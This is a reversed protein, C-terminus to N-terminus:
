CAEQGAQFGELHEEGAKFGEFHLQGESWCGGDTPESSGSAGLGFTFFGLTTGTPGFGLSIMQSM